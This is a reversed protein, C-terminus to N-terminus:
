NNALNEWVNLPNANTLMDVIADCLPDIQDDHAHTDDATFAECEAIFDNTFAANTPVVVTRAEIYSVVDMVRTLKDKVRQIPVIPIPNLKNTQIDQILGTGSSKDEVVMERLQGYDDPNVDRHKNWFAIARSKLEPATWKGRIMDILYIRGDRGKGWLEFVSYDNREATKQATDAYIKRYRLLPLVSYREFFEGRIINGGLAVPNQQYQSAFVHRSIRAGSQDAGDGREMTLLENLPEKYPWYSFRGKNTVPGKDILVQYKEPLKQFAEEDLVAPIKLHTWEGGMNGNLIFASPDNESIRQMIVIIPTDPNARRSKVTNLLKRNAANLKPKSFADDPKLPDDIIIAGQFGPAMHGARFGTIQGSLSTAYVGGANKGDVLVNWRGKSKADTAIELPWLSQYEDSQVLDRASQSNLLALEDSYSLHLFRARPNLTLGRAIFNIVALETKSSGPPVNIILNKIKGDIVDQLADSIMRHHWNVIFKMNQRAKFFYRTFALHDEECELRAWALDEPLYIETIAISSTM